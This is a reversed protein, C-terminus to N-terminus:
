KIKFVKVVSPKEGSSYIEEYRIGHKEAVERWARSEGGEYEYTAGWDDFYVITGTDVLKNLMVFDLAEYTSGYLDVDIDVFSAIGMNETDVLEETLSECFFGPILKLKKNDVGEEIIKMSGYLSTGYLGTSSFKGPSHDKHATYGEKEEPLGIFSDFGWINDYPIQQELLYVCVLLTSIGSWVGFLYIDGPFTIAEMAVQRGEMPIDFEEYLQQFTKTM